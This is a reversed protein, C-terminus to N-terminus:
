WQTVGGWSTSPTGARAVLQMSLAGAPMGDLIEHMVPEEIDFLGNPEDYSDAWQRYATVVDGRRVEVGPHFALRPDESARLSGRATRGCLGRRLRGGM